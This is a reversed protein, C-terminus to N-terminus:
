VTNPLQMGLARMAGCHRFQPQRKRVAGQLSRRPKHRMDAENDTAGVLKNVEARMRM